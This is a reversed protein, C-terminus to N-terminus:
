RLVRGDVDRRYRSRVLQRQLYTMTSTRNMSLKPVLVLDSSPPNLPIRNWVGIAIVNDGNKLAPIGLASIQVPIPYVPLGANSSEHAAPSADYSLPGAPLEPSRYVETGNIWVAYGDDYDATIWLSEVVGVDPVNLIARTYVSAVGIPVTSQLLAEAGTSAEYGVGYTGATWTSDDFLEATWTEGLGPDTMNALYKMSSGFGILETEEPNTLDVLELDVISCSGACVGDGDFDNVSDKPCLDCVDGLGDDDTDTQSPNYDMPCNDLEVSLGDADADNDRDNPFSDFECGPNAFGPDGLGDGDLDTCPDCADGLGDSDADEQGSNVTLPCNDVLDNTGDNEDDDDCPDGLGDGEFDAQDTNYVAPCNDCLDGFFDQDIDMQDTNSTGSCNDM